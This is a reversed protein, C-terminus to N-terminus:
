QKSGAKVVFQNDVEVMTAMVGGRNGIAFEFKSGDDVVKPQLQFMGIGVTPLVLYIDELFTEMTARDAEPLRRKEINPKQSNILRVRGAEEAKQIMSAELYLIHSKNLDDNAATIAAALRWDGRENASAWLRNKIQEGQGIYAHGKSGDDPPEYLVYVGARNAEDRKLLEGLAANGAVMVSATRGHLKAVVLGSPTGDTLLLEIKCPRGAHGNM